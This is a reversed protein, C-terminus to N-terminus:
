RKLSNIFDGIVEKNAHLVAGLGVLGAHFITGTIFAIM